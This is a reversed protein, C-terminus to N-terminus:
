SLLGARVRALTSGSAGHHLLMDHTSDYRDRLLRLFFLMTEPHAFEGDLIVKGSLAYDEAIVEEPVGALDLLCGIVIGTRDRGVACHIVTPKSPLDELTEMIRLVTPIGDQLMEFYRTASALPSRDPPRVWHSRITSFLPFHLRECLAPLPPVPSEELEGDTRLDIMRRLGLDHVFYSWTDPGAGAFEGSRYLRNKALVSGSRTPLGGLDRLNLCGSLQILRDSPM